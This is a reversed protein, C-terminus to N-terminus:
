SLITEDTRRQTRDALQDYDHALRNMIERAEIDRMDMALVRMEAGRDRWHKVDDIDRLTM